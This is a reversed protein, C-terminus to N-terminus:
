SFNKMSFDNGGTSKPSHGTDVNDPEVFDAGSVHDIEERSMTRPTHTFLSTLKADSDKRHM